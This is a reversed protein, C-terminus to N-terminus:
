NRRALLGMAERNLIPVASSPAVGGEGERCKRGVGVEDDSRVPAVLGPALVDCQLPADAVEGVVALVVEVGRDDLEADLVLVLGLDVGVADLQRGVELVAVV